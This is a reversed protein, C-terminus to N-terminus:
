KEVKTGCYLCFMVDAALETECNTCQRLAQQPQGEAMATQDPLLEAKTGCNTCFMQGPALATNCGACAFDVAQEAPATNIPSGCSSCFPANNPVTGGCNDCTAVGKIQNIQDSHVKIKAKADNIDAIFQMFCEEPEEGFTEYYLQGIQSFLYKIRKEEDSILGNLRVTEAMNKAKQAAEQGSKTIKKGLGEFFAM